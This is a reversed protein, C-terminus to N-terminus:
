HRHHRRREHRRSGREDHAYDRDRDHDRYRRDAREHHYAREHHRGHRHHRPRELVYVRHQRLPPPESRYYYWRPGHRYYWRGRVLYVDRDAYRARPYTEIRPPPDDPIYEIVLQAQAPEPALSMSGGVLAAGCVIIHQFLRTNIM